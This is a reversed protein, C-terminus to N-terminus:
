EEVEVGGFNAEVAALHAEAAERTLHCRNEELRRYDDNNNCWYTSVVREEAVCFYIKGFPLAETIPAPFTHNGIRRMKVKPPKRRVKCTSPLSAILDIAKWAPRWDNQHDPMCYEFDDIDGDALARLFEAHPHPKKGTM